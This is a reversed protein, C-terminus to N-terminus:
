RLVLHISSHTAKHLRTHAPPFKEGASRDNVFAGHIVNRLFPFYDAYCKPKPM